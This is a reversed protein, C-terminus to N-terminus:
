RADEGSTASVVPCYKQLDTGVVGDDHAWSSRDAKNSQCRLAANAPMFSYSYQVMPVGRCSTVIVEDSAGRQRKPHCVITRSLERQCRQHVLALEM